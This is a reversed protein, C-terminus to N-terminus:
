VKALSNRVKALFAPIKVKPDGAGLTELPIYGTYGSTKIIRLLKDLDVDVEKGDILLKPM